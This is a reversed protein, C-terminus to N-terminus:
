GDRRQMARMEVAEHAREMAITGSGTARGAQMDGRVQPVRGLGDLAEGIIKEMKTRIGEMLDVGYRLEGKELWKADEALVGELVQLHIWVPSGCAWPQMAEEGVWQVYLGMLDAIIKHFYIVRGECLRKVEAKVRAFIGRRDVERAPLRTMASMLLKLLYIASLHDNNVPRFSAQKTGGEIAGLDRPAQQLPFMPSGGPEHRMGPSCRVQHSSANTHFGANASQTGMGLSLPLINTMGMIAEAVEAPVTEVIGRSTRIDGAGGGAQAEEGGGGPFHQLLHRGFESEHLRYQGIGSNLTPMTDIGPIMRDDIQAHNEDIFLVGTERRNTEARGGLPATIGMTVNAGGESRGSGRSDKMAPCSQALFRLETTAMSAPRGQAVGVSPQANSEGLISCFQPRGRATGPLTQSKRSEMPCPCGQGNQERFM